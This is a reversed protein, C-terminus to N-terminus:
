QTTSPRCNRWADLTDKTSSGGMISKRQVQEQARNELTNSTLTSTTKQVQVNKKTIGMIELVANPSKGALADLDAPRLGVEAGKAIYDREANEGWAAVLANSVSTQNAKVNNATKAAELQKNVIDAITDVDLEVPSNTSETSAQANKKLAEEVTDRKELESRLKATEVELTTIHEDKSSISNLATEVDAFKQQGESNTIGQLISQYTDSGELETKGSFLETAQDTM